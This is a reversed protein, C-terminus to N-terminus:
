DIQHKFRETQTRTLGQKRRNCDVDATVFLLRSVCENQVAAVACSLQKLAVDPQFEVVMTGTHPM